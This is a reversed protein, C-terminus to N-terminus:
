YVARFVGVAAMAPPIDVVRSDTPVHVLLNLVLATRGLVHLVFASIFSSRRSSSSEALGRCRFVDDLTYLDVGLALM